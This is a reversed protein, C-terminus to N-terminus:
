LADKNGYRNHHAFMEADRRVRLAKHPKPAPYGLRFAYAIKIHEPVGLIKKLDKEMPPEGFESLIRVSIGLEEAMLWMNEMVCGLSLIGLFDGESAPARKRADYVVVLLLPSGDISDELTISGAERVIEDMDFPPTTWSKPFFTSLIGTKKKLLEEKSFSLQLYNEKIFEESLPSKIRRIEELVKKDDVVIIDFNQMNHATPTWRAAELIQELDKKAVPRKPDFSVRTSHRGEIVKLIKSMKGAGLNSSPDWPGCGRLIDLSGWAPKLKSNLIITNKIILTM